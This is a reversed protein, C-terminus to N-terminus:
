FTTFQQRSLSGAVRPGHNERGRATPRASVQYHSVRGRGGCRANLHLIIERARARGAFGRFSSARLRASLIRLAHFRSSFNMDARRYSGHLRRLLERAQAGRLQPPVRQRRPSPATALLLRFIASFAAILHGGCLTWWLCGREAQATAM